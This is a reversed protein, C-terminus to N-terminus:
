KQIRGGAGDQATQTAGRRELHKAHDLHQQAVQIQEDIMSRLQQSAYERLVKQKDIMEQHKVVMMGIYCRDLEPGQKQSFEKQASALCQQGIQRQVTLFDFGQGLNSNAPGTRGGQATQTQGAQGQQSRPATGQGVQNEGGVKAPESQPTQRIAHGGTQGQQGAQGLADPAIKLLQQLAKSHDDVMQQAFQKTQQDSAREAALRGLEVEEHNGLALMAAVAHDAQVLGGAQQGGAQSPVTQQQTGTASPVAQQQGGAQSQRESSGGSTREGPQSQRRDNPPPNLPQQQALTITHSALIVIGVCLPTLRIRARSM